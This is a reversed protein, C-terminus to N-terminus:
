KIRLVYERMLAKRNESHGLQESVEGLAKDITKGEARLRDYETQAYMKRIAHISTDRYKSAIGLDNMKRNIARNISNHQVPCIREKEGTRAKLDVFYARDQARIPVNRDRGGKGDIVHVVGKDLDIDKGQLKTIESVRLGLKEGLEIAVKAKSTSNEFAQELKKFDEKSMAVSRIKTNEVAAPVVFGKYDAQNNKAKYTKNVINELKRFKSAYQELTAKSCTNAKENLFGQIHEAKIDKVFKIGPHNEKMWNSFNGSVDKLGERDAYSFIRTNDMEGDAKISHKDMGEVFNDNIANLFQWKINKAM